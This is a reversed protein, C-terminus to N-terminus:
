HRPQPKGSQLLVGPSSILFAYVLTLRSASRGLFRVFHYKQIMVSRRKKALIDELEREYGQLAREKEVRVDAPLDHGRELLRKTSRVKSKLENVSLGQKGPATNNNDRRPQSQKPPHSQKIRKPTPIYNPNEEGTATDRHRKYSM